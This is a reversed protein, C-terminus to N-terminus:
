FKLRGGLSKLAMDNEPSPRFGSKDHSNGFVNLTTQGIYPVHLKEKGQGEDAHVRYKESYHVPSVPKSTEWPYKTSGFNSEPLNLPKM